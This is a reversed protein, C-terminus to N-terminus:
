HQHDDEDDNMKFDFDIQGAQNLKGKEKKELKNWSKAWKSGSKHQAQKKKGIIGTDMDLQELDDNDLSEDFTDEDDDSQSESPAQFELSKSFDDEGLSKYDSEREFNDTEDDYNYFHRDNSRRRGDVQLYGGILMFVYIIVLLNMSTM